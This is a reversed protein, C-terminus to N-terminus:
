GNIVLSPQMIRPQGASVRSYRWRSAEAIVMLAKRGRGATKRKGLQDARGRM